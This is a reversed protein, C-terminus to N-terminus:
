RAQAAQPSHDRPQQRAGASLHPRDILRDIPPNTGAAKWESSTTARWRRLPPLFQHISREAPVKRPNRWSRRNAEPLHRARVIAPTSITVIASRPSQKTIPSKPLHGQESPDVSYKRSLNRTITFRIASVPSARIGTTLEASSRFSTPSADSSSRSRALFRFKVSSLCRSLTSRM